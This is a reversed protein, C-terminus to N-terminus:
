AHRVEKTLSRCSYGAFILKVKNMPYKIIHITLNSAACALPPLHHRCHVNHKIVAHCFSKVGNVGTKSDARLFRKGNKRSAGYLCASKRESHLLSDNFRMLSFISERLNLFANLVSRAWAWFAACGQRFRVDFGFNRQAAGFSLRHFQVGDDVRVNKNGCQPAAYLIGRRHSDHEGDVAMFDDRKNMVLYQMLVLFHEATGFEIKRGARYMDDNVSESFQPKRHNREGSCFGNGVLVVSDKVFDREACPLARLCVKYGAVRPVEWLLREDDRGRLHNLNRFSQLPPRTMEKGGYMTESDEM